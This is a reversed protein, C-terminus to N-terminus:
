AMGAVVDFERAAESYQEVGDEFVAARWKRPHAWFSICFSWAVERVYGYDIDHDDGMTMIVMEGM